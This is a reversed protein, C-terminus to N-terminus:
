SPLAGAALTALTTGTWHTLGSLTKAQVAPNQPLVPFPKVKPVDTDEHLPFAREITAAIRPLMAEPQPSGVLFLPYVHTQRGPPTTTEFFFQLSGLLEQALM